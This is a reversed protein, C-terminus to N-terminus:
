ENRHPLLLSLDFVVRHQPWCPLHSAYSIVSSLYFMCIIYFLSNSIEAFKSINLITVTLISSIFNFLPPLLKNKLRPLSYIIIAYQTYYLTINIIKLFHSPMTYNCILRIFVSPLALFWIGLLKFSFLKDEIFCSLLCKGIDKIYM